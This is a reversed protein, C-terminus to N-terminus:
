EPINGFYSYAVFDGRSVMQELEAKSVWKWDTVESGLTPADTSNRSVEALWLDEIRNEMKLRDFRRLHAPSLQIGLEESAERIAGSISDEGALVYGVTTAWTGPDSELDPARQQILYEGTEVRIWVHVVLHFEDPALETGRIVARGTRTGFEDVVDCM